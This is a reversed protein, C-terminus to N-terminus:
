DLQKKIEEILMNAGELATGEITCGSARVHGGGAFKVAITSVDVKTNSRLSFKFKGEGETEYAFIAVEVGDTIRLQDVIGELDPKSANYLELYERPVIGLIIQGDEYLRSETIVRAMILNQIYSKHYFTGDIMESSNVGCELLVGAIEMTHRTTNSHKFVGTDHIIGLYIADAVAKSVEPLQRNRHVGILDYVAEAASSAEFVLNLRAYKENTIHHDVLVKDRASDFIKFFELRETNSTDLAIFLDYEPSDFVARKVAEENPCTIANEIGKLLSFEPMYEGLYVQVKKEPYTETIYNYLGICSGVCDGDPRKHGGIAITKASQVAQWFRVMLHKQM